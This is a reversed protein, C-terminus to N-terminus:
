LLDLFLYLLDLWSAQLLPRSDRKIGGKKVQMPLIFTSTWDLAAKIKDLAAKNIRMTMIIIAMTAVRIERPKRANRLRLAPKYKM